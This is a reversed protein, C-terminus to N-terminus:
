SWIYEKIDSTTILGGYSLMYYAGGTRQLIDCYGGDQYNATDPYFREGFTVGSDTSVYVVTYFKTSTVYHRGYLLIISGFTRLRPRQLVGVQSTIDIQTGWTAGLDTSLYKFTKALTIDKVICLLNNGSTNLITFESDDTGSTIDAVKVWNAGNDTSKYLADVFPHTGNETASDMITIYADTGIIFHDQGGVLAADTLIKGEDTWTAGDDTSRYQYTGIAGPKEFVQFLLDGNPVRFIIGDTMNTNTAHPAFPAGTVADTSVLTDVASWTVGEDASFRIHFRCDADASSHDIAQRYVMIWESDNNCLVPRGLWDATTADRYLSKTSVRTFRSHLTNDALGLTGLTYIEGYSLCTDWLAFHALNGKSVFLAGTNYTGVLMKDTHLAGVWTGIGGPFASSIETGNVFTTARNNILSWSLTICMWNSSPTNITGYRSVGGATFDTVLTNSDSKYLSFTNGATVSIFQLIFHNAGDSIIAPDLKVWISATGEQGSFAAALGAGGHNVFENVGDIYISKGTDRRISTKVAPQALTPTNVYLGNYGNGSIDVADTGTLDDYKWYGLLNSPQIAAVIASYDTTKLSGGIMTLVTNKKAM